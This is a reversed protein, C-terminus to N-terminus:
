IPYIIGLKVTVYCELMIQASNQSKKVFKIKLYLEFVHMNTKKSLESSQFGIHPTGGGRFIYYICCQVKLKATCVSYFGGPDEIEQRCIVEMNLKAIADVKVKAAIEESHCPQRLSTAM